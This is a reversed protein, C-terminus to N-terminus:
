KTVKAEFTNEGQAVQLSWGSANPDLYKDPIQKLLLLAEESRHKAEAGEKELAAFQEKAKAPMDNRKPNMLKQKNAEPGKGFKAMGTAGSNKKSEQEAILKLGGLDLSVKVNGASVGVASFNGDVIEASVAAGKEPTFVIVGMPLPKGDVTVTGTVNGKGGGCGCALSFILGLAVCSVRRALRGQRDRTM